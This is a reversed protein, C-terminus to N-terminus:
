AASVVRHKAAPSPRGLLWGQGLQCGLSRLRQLQETSEIGEGVVQAGLRHAVRVVAEVIVQNAVEVELNKTFSADIKILDFPVLKLHTLSSYGTGFDDLAIRLGLARLADLTRLGEGVTDLMAHETVELVVDGAAVGTEALIGAVQAPMDANLLERTSVNVYMTLPSDAARSTNWRALQRCAERLVWAGLPVLSTTAEAVAVTEVPPVAGLQPHDWRLLAEFGVTGQGAQLSVIPQYELRLGGDRLADVLDRELRRRRRLREGLECGYIEYGSGGRQKAQYMAADAEALMHEADASTEGGLAVGISAGIRVEGGPLTFPSELTAILRETLRILDDEAIGECVLVFEDGSLRALLDTQRCVSQLRGAVSVLLQDGAAHGLDDNVRKFGNLDIFLVAHPLDSPARRSLTSALRDLLSSRNPLGTLPDHTARQRMADRVTEREIVLRWLRLLVLLSLVVSALLPVGRRDTLMLTLPAALLAVGLVAVRGHTLTRQHNPAPESLASMSPHLATMAILAYAAGILLDELGGRTYAGDAEALTRGVHGALGACAAAVIFWASAVKRNGVFLLRLAASTVGALAVPAVALLAYSLVTKESLLEPTFVTGSLLTALAVMVILGDIASERDGNPSQRRVLDLAALGLAPFAVLELLSAITLLLRGADFPPFELLNVVLLLGVGGALLVWPRRASPRHMDMGAVVAVTSGAVLVLWASERVTVDDSVGFVALLIAAVVAAARWARSKM